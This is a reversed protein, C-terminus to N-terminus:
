HAPKPSGRLLLRQFRARNYRQALVCPLNATLAYAVILGTALMVKAMNDLHRKTIFDGLGYAARSRSRLRSCWRSGPTSRAPSSTRRSSRRTGAPIGVAFDFSVVSHVSVVLPATKPKKM